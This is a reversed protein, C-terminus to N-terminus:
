NTPKLQSAVPSAVPSAAAEVRRAKSKTLSVAKSASLKKQQDSSLIGNIDSNYQTKLATLKRNNGKAAERDAVYKDIIPKVKAEQDPTLGVQNKLRTLRNKAKSEPSVIRKKVATGANTAPALNAEVKKTPEAIATGITASLLIVSVARFLTNFNM